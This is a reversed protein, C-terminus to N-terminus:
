EQRLATAPDVRLARRAPLWHALLAVATLLGVAGALTGPDTPEVGFLLVDLGRALGLAAVLGVALGATVTRLASALILRIVDRRCAGVVMRIAVERHRESVTYAAVGYLGMAALLLALGAFGSLLGMVFRRSAVSREVLASLLHADYVPVGPDLAHIISRIAPVPSEAPTRARVALVLFSDTLQAQPLYMQPRAAADLATHRVDGVIGVITRWPPDNGGIRVRQGIPDSGPWLRKATAESILMVPMTATRDADSFLRGRVLPIQMTRFYDPTVSYRQVSPHESPDGSSGEAHFGWADYSGGLPVQGALAAAEVGPLRRVEELVRDQFLRVPADDRYATGVLSFQVTLVGSPNFGPDVRMLAGITRLMLGAGTLLVLALALDVTVLLQRARQSHRGGGARGDSALVPRLDFSSVRLAPILGFAFGTMLSLVTAFALVRGDITLGQLRPISLPARLALPEIAIAALVVGLVGGAACLVISETLMQRVLRARGAGLAARVAMERARTISRALLLNAVNACAILLVFGVAGLLILLAPRVPGALEEDLRAMGIEGPPYDSPYSARLDSRIAQLEQLALAPGVDPRIRGLVKLHQCTRCAQPLSREYGLPAWMQARQYFHASILPEFTPPLIGVIRYDEDNMRIVRGVTSPDAGFRSYWLAHSIILVRWADPRDDAASFDRGFAPVVGLMPFYRWSVRLAPVREAGDATVMSPMWQRIAVLHEFARARDQLDAFTTFGNNGISGDADRDGVVFLRDPAGYPLPRLLVANVLTFMATNAGIGLGLTLVAIATFTPTRRLTRVAYVVDRALDDLWPIGRQDRMTDLAQGLGGARIRAARIAEDGHHGRRRAEEAALELHFRLEEELEEDQRSPRMTGRLRHAWELLIRM